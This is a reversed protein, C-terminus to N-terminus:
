EFVEGRKVVCNDGVVNDILLVGVEFVQVIEVALGDRVVDDCTCM